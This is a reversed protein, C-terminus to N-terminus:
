LMLLLNVNAIIYFVVGNGHKFKPTMYCIEIDDDFVKVFKSCYFCLKKEM